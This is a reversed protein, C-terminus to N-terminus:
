PGTSSASAASRRSHRARATLRDGPRRLPEKRRIRRREPMVALRRGQPAPPEADQRRRRHGECVPAHRRNGRDGDLPPDHPVGRGPDDLRDWRILDERLVPDGIRGRDSSLRGRFRMDSGRAGAAYSFKGRLGYTGGLIQPAATGSSTPSSRRLRRGPSRCISPAAGARRLSLDGEARLTGGGNLVAGASLKATGPAGYVLGSLDLDIGTLSVQAEPRATRDTLFFSFDKTTLKECRSRCPAAQTDGPRTVPTLVQQITLTGDALYATRLSGGRLASRTSRSPAALNTLRIDGRRPSEPLSVPPLSDSPSVLVLDAVDMSGSRLAFTPRLPPTTLRM